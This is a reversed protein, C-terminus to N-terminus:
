FSTRRRNETNDPIQPVFMELTTACVLGFHWQGIAAPRVSGASPAAGGLHSRPRLEGGEEDVPPNRTMESGHSMYARLSKLEHNEGDVHPTLSGPSAASDTM